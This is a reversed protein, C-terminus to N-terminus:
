ILKHGKNKPRESLTSKDVLFRCVDLFTKLGREDTKYTATWRTIVHYRGKSVGELISEDGDMGVIGKEGTSLQFFSLEHVLGELTKSDEMSLEAEKAEVLKGPDYGGQGNLRRASLVYIGEHKQARVVIPNGWTPLIMIRYVESSVDKALEPLRPEKMRELSKSFWDAEFKTIGPGERGVKIPFYPSKDQAWAFVCFLISITLGTQVFNARSRGM